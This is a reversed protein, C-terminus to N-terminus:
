ANSMAVHSSNLRTSKRDPLLVAAMDDINARDCSVLGIGTTRDITCGFVSNPCNCLRGFHIEGSGTNPDAGNRGAQDVGLETLNSKTYILLLCVFHIFVYGRQCSRIYSFNDNEDGIARGM